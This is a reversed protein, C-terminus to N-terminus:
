TRINGVWTISLLGMCMVISFTKDLDVSHHSPLLQTYLM